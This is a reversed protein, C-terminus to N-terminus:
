RRKIYYTQAAYAAYIALFPNIPLHYRDQGVTLIPFIFLYAPIIILVHFPGIKKGLILQYLGYCALILIGWWYLTSLIKLLLLTTNSSNKRLADNWHIGITEAKYTIVARKVSLEVYSLPNHIIFSIAEKKLYADREAENVFPTAPEENAAGNSGLHNGMWLNVGGNTSILVPHGFQQYNRYAWPAILLTIAFAATFLSAISARMDRKYIWEIAPLLIAFPLATPRIYTAACVMSGWFLARYIPPIKTNGWIYIATLVFFIFILESALITTFQVLAPWLAMIWASTLATADNIYTKSIKYTLWVICVGIAVNFIVIPLFSVGFLKYLLAYIASTGVPWYATIDGNAFAYQHKFAINQAFTHYASSDAVPSVPVLLAWVVRLSIAVMLITCIATNKKFFASIDL